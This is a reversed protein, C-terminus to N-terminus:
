QVSLKLIRFHLGDNLYVNGKGDVAVSAPDEITNFPLVIPALAVYVNDAVEM